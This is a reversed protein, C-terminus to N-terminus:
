PTNSVPSLISIRIYPLKETILATIDDTQAKYSESHEGLVLDTIMEKRIFSIITATINEGCVGHVIGGFQTAYSFLQQLLEATKDGKLINNGRTVHLVHLEAPEGGAIEAGCEIL